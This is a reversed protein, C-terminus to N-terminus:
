SSRCSELHMQRIAQFQLNSNVEVELDHYKFADDRSVEGQTKGPCAVNSWGRGSPNILVRSSALFRNSKRADRSISDPLAHIREFARSSLLMAEFSLSAGYM